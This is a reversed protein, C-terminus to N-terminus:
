GTRLLSNQIPTSLIRTNPGKDGSVIHINHIGVREYTDGINAMNNVCIPRKEYIEFICFYKCYGKENSLYLSFMTKLIIKLHAINFIIQEKEEGSLQYLPCDATFSLFKFFTILFM